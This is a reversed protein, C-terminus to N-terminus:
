IKFAISANYITSIGNTNDDAVGAHQVMTSAIQETVSNVNEMAEIIQQFFESSREAEEVCVIVDDSCQSMEQVAQQTTQQITQIINNIETTSDQTRIALNRVEDAVV